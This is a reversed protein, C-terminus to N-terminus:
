LNRKPAPRTHAPVHITETRESEEPQPLDRGPGGEAEGTKRRSFFIVAAIVVVILAIPLLKSLSSSSTSSAGGVGQTASGAGQGTGSPSAGFVNYSAPESQTQLSMLANAGSGLYTGNDQGCNNDSWTSCWQTWDTGNQSLQLAARASALPDTSGPPTGNQPILWLGVGVTGDPNTRSANPNLGSEADAVAAAMAASQPNGGAQIWYNEVQDFTLAQTPQNPGTATSIPPASSNSPLPAPVSTV